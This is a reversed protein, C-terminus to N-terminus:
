GVKDCDDSTAKPPSDPYGHGKFHGETMRNIERNRSTRMQSPIPQFPLSSKQPGNSRYFETDRLRTKTMTQKLIHNKLVETINNLAVLLRQLKPFRAVHDYSM